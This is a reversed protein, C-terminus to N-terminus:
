RLYEFFVFIGWYICKSPTEQIRMFQILSPPPGVFLPQVIQLVVLRLVQRVAFAHPGVDVLQGAPGGALPVIHYAVHLHHLLPHVLPLAALLVPLGFRVRVGEGAVM